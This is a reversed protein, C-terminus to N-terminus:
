IYLTSIRIEVFLWVQLTLKIEAREIRINLGLLPAYFM